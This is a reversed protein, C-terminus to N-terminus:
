STEITPLELYSAADRTRVFDFTPAPGALPEFHDRDAGTISLRIRAGAAFRYAVPLLDFTVREIRGPEMERANSRDFSRYPAPSRYVPPTSSLDRFLLRLEGETVYRVRGDSSEEELYAFLLADRATCALHFLVVPHGAIEVDRDIPASRYVLAGRGAEIRRPYDPVVFPSVLTRWRSREGSRAEPDVHFVDCADRLDRANREGNTSPAERRLTREERLHWRVPKAGKPPWEGSARWQEAGMSFYRTNRLRDWGTDRDRLHHDFFRLLEADLDFAPTRSSAHPSAHMSCGHNWPGVLLRDCARGLTLHRKIAAHPYGGDFWGSISFMPPADRLADVYGSPSFVAVSGLAFESPDPDDRFLAGRSTADIDRNKAHEVIARKLDSGDDGEVRTVGRLIKSAGAVVARRAFPKRLSPRGLGFVEAVMSPADNRDLASNFRQWAETFWFQRVGGPFAIDSYTDFLSCRPAVAKLAPHRMTALFEAATGDYSNGTAGVCGDSWPQAVIWDLVEAGDKVEDPSWPCKWVGFSAGSGRADVDVWAYGRSVFFSRMRANVPDIVSETVISRAFPAVAISRMYRTQRVITPVRATVGEPLHVDIAIRVGDRMTLYLSRRAGVRHMPAGPDFADPLRDTNSAPAKSV